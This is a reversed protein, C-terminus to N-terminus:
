RSKESTNSLKAKLERRSSVGVKRYIASLQNSVTYPSTERIRAIELNSHGRLVLTVVARESPTLEEVGRPLARETPSRFALVMYEELGIRFSHVELDDPAALKFAQRDVPAIPRSKSSHRRSAV